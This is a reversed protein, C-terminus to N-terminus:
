EVVLSELLDEILEGNKRRIFFDNDVRTVRSPCRRVPEGRQQGDRLRAEFAWSEGNRFVIVSRRVPATRAKELV